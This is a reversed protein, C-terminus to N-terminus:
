QKMESEDFGHKNESVIHKNNREKSKKRRLQQELKHVASVISAYVDDGIENAVFVVGHEGRVIIEVNQSIGEQGEIVVEVQTIGNYFRPLKSTKEEAYGRLADTIDIHKGTINFLM